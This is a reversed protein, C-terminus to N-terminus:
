CRRAGGARYHTPSMGLVGASAEYFRGNSGFGAEHFAETVTAATALGQRLRASRGAAAYAKPRSARPRRSSATFTTRASSSRSPWSHWRSRSPRTTSSGAPRPSSRPTRRMSPSAARTAAAALGFAPRKPRASAKTCDCTRRIRWARRARRGAFFAQRRLPIGSRATLPRTARSSARGAPIKPSTQTVAVEHHRARLPYSGLTKVLM